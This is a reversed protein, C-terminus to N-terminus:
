TNKLLLQASNTIEEAWSHAERTEEDDLCPRSICASIVRQRTITANMFKSPGVMLKQPGMMLKQPGVMVIALLDISELLVAM